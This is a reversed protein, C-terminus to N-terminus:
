PADFTGAPYGRVTEVANTFVNTGDQRHATPFWLGDHVEWGEWSWRAAPPEQGQLIFEWRQVRHSNPDVFVWYRDGPTLGVATFNLSLKEFRGTSDKIVGEYGLHVGPDLLKYPMLFWYSDNTWLANARQTSM